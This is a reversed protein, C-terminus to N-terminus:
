ALHKALDTLFSFAIVAAALFFAVEVFALFVTVLFVSNVTTSGAPLEPM